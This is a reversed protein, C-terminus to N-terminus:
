LMKLVRRFDTQALKQDQVVKNLIDPRKPVKIKERVKSQSKWEFKKRSSVTKRFRLYNVFFSLPTILPYKEGSDHGLRNREIQARFANIKCGIM